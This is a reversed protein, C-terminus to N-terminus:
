AAIGHETRSAAALSAAIAEAVRKVVPVAVANGAQKYLHGDAIAPLAYDDPYGMVRFAERPTIKRIRDGVKVLPVNHGGTGMWAALTPFLGSQNRRMGSMHRYQYVADDTVADAIRDWIKGFRSDYFYKEPVEELLLDRPGVTLPLPAPWDMTANLNNRFGVIYIRERGQPINGYEAANMVRYDVTYGIGELTSLIVKLTNGKDHGVLGKVNELLFAAPKKVALIGVIAHFLTGRTDAFGLRQGSHSFPQCPFGGVFVDHDPISNPDVEWVSRADLHGADFNAAYTKQAHPDIENSWVIEFGAQQFGLEIGGTGSFSGAVRLPAGPTM